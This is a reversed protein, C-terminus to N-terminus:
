KDWCIRKQQYNEIIDELIKIRDYSDFHKLRSNGKAILKNRLDTDELLTKLHLSLSDPKTLDMLLAADGVQDKLGKIDSYLVPIGISFAELPPLNTPGFYSPMVLALSQKYLQFIEDDSVFGTFRIYNELNLKKVYTEIYKQNNKDGGSFIAGIRLNYKKALVFLGRLLYIHNKHAWLQAPYFVYPVNLQYKKKIDISMKNKLDTKRRSFESAQFPMVKIRDIDINYYHSLNAKGIDSDVLIAVARPLIAKYKTDRSEFQRNFRVEPFEPDERHSLDWVTIIYNLEELSQSLNSPSLFYVLDINKNILYKEFASYRFFFKILKLLRFNIIKIRFYNVIKEFLSINIFRSNIGHTSLLNINKKITTFFFVEAVNNSIKKAVLAANLAQQYGGGVEIEQDFIVAVKIPKLKLM